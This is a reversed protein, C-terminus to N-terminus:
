SAVFNNQDDMYQNDFLLLNKDKKRCLRVKPTDVLALLLSFVGSQGKVAGM